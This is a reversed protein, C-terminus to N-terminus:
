NKFRVIGVRNRFFDWFLPRTRLTNLGIVWVEERDKDGPLHFNELSIGTLYQVQKYEERIGSQTVLYFPSASEMHNAMKIRNGALFVKKEGLFLDNPGEPLLNLSAGTDIEAFSTHGEPYEFQLFFFNGKKKTNLFKFDTSLYADPHECFPSDRPFRKLGEGYWFICNESFFDIGLLGPISKPLIGKINKLTFIQGGLTFTSSEEPGASEYFSLESGTDWLFSDDGQNSKIGSLLLHTGTDIVTINTHPPLTKSKPFQYSVSTQRSPIPGPQCAGFYVLFVVLSVKQYLSLKYM